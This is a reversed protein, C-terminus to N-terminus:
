KTCIDKKRSPLEWFRQNRGYDEAEQITQPMEKGTSEPLLLCLCGGFIGLTGLIILPIYTKITALYVIYPVLITAVYGTIHITALGQARLVTPLLEAAYQMGINYSINVAFRGVIGLCASPVGIPVAAALLSFVGSLIMSSCSLWRRGVVDLILILLVDAPFETATAVSFTTFIDLGLSGVNRVHGDFVMAITIWIVILLLSHRRLRPTKFLDLASYKKTEEEAKAIEIATERFNQIIEKPIKKGNIRECKKLIKLAEDIRGQAILWRASEPVVWPTLISLALPVSTVLAYIRWDMVGLAIWPLICAALTFYVAISMNAVFTRWKPGVYEIVVIYMIIFCNDYALGVLFRCLCFSWFSDAFATGVGALFGAMNSGVLAPIRGYKDAIWGFLFGGVIGGCFFVAQATAPYDDRDCVWNLETAITEYPVDTFNFEWKGACKKTPWKTDPDRVGNQLVTTWNVDYVICREFKNDTTMPISLHRREELSLEGLEEVYCWHHEPVITMFIQAFYVFAFFSAYPIMLLFLIRQYWGFEGIYPFLDDLNKLKLAPCIENRDGEESTVNGLDGPTAGGIVARKEHSEM